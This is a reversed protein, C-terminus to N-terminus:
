EHHSYWSEEQKASSSLSSKLMATAVKPEVPKSFLYGQAQDCHLSSLQDLQDNTEVGEAVVNLELNKALKIITNVVECRGQGTEIGRIFSRDIKLTDIPLRILYALSSYGTGFDDLCVKIGLQRIQRLIREASEL